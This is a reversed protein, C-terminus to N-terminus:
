NTNNDIASLYKNYLEVFIKDILILISFYIFYNDYKYNPNALTNLTPLNQQYSLTNHAIRNRHNYLLKHKKQLNDGFLNISDHKGKVFIDSPTIKMEIFTNFNEQDWISLNTAAFNNKVFDITNELMNTLDIELKFDFTSNHEIVQKLLQLFVKNKDTYSSCEGLKAENALLTRRYDFDNTAIEWVICKLKQEQFGTMKLFVSPMLYDRLSFTEIGNGIGASAHVVEELIHTISSEIFKKHVSHYM